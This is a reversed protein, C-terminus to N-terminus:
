IRDDARQLRCVTISSLAGGGVKLLFLYEVTIKFVIQADGLKSACALSMVATVEKARTM